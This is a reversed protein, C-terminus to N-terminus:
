IVALPHPRLNKGRQPLNPSTWKYFLQNVKLCLWQFKAGMSDKQTFWGPAQAWFNVFKWNTSREALPMAPIGRWWLVWTVMWLSPCMTPMGMSNCWPMPGISGLPPLSPKGPVRAQYPHVWMMALRFVRKGEAGKKPLILLFTVNSCFKEPDGWAKLHTLSTLESQTVHTIHFWELLPCIDHCGWLSQHSKGWWGLDKSFFAYDSM